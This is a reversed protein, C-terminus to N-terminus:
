DGGKKPRGGKKGNERVAIIKAPSKSLGGKRGLQAASSALMIPQLAVITEGNWEANDPQIMDADFAAALAVAQKENEALVLAQEIWDVEVPNDIITLDGEEILYLNM